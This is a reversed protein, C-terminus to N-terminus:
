VEFLHKDFAHNEEKGVHKWRPKDQIAYGRKECFSSAKTMHLKQGDPEEGIHSKDTGGAM